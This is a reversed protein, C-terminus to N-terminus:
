TQPSQITLIWHGKPMKLDKPGQSAPDLHNEKTIIAKPEAWDAAHLFGRRQLVCVGTGWLESLIAVGPFSYPNPTGESRM